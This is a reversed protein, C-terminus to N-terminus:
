FISISDPDEKVKFNLSKAIQKVLERDPIYTLGEIRIIYGIQKDDNREFSIRREFQSLAKLCNIAQSLQM